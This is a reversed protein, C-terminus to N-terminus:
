RVEKAPINPLKERFYKLSVEVSEGMLFPLTGLLKRGEPSSYFKIYAKLEDETFHKDYIPVLAEIIEDINTAKKIEASQQPPARKILDAFNKNLSERTGFVDIFKLILDKKSMGPFEEKVPEKVAEKTSVPAVPVPAQMAAIIEQPTKGDITVIDEMYHTLSVGNVDVVIKKEDKEIIGGSVVSGNKLEIIEAQSLVPMSLALVLSAPLLSRHFQFKRPNTMILTM